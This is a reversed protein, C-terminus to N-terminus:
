ANTDPGASRERSQRRRLLVGALGTGMLLLTAPEPTAALEPGVFKYSVGGIRYLDTDVAFGTASAIGTGSLSVDFLVSGLGSSRTTGRLQGAMAFSTEFVAEEGPVASPVGFPNTDFTLLGQLYAEYTTGEITVSWTHPTGVTSFGFTGPMTRTGTELFAIGGGRGDAAVELGAGSLRISTFAGDWYLFTDGGTVLIPDASAPAAWALMLFGLVGFRRALALM